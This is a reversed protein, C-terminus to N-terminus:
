ERRRQSVSGELADDLEPGPEFTAARSGLPGSDVLLEGRGDLIVVDGSFQEGARRAIQVLEGPRGLQGAATAAVIQAQSASEGEVEADVRDSVNSALPVELAVIVVILSYAFAALLRARLSM